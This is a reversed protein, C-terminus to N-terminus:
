MRAEAMRQREFMYALGTRDTTINYNHENTTNAYVTGGQSPVFMEPGREGVMYPLGASVPGGYARGPVSGTQNITYNTTVDRPVHQWADILLDVSGAQERTRATTPSIGFKSLDTMSIEGDKAAIPLKDIDKIYTDLPIKGAIFADNIQQQGKALALSEKTALGYKLMVQETAKAADEASVKGEKQAKIIADIAGQALMQKVQADTAKSFSQAMTDLRAITEGVSARYAADAAALVKKAEVDAAQKEAVRALAAYYRDQASSAAEVSQAEAEKQRRTDEALTKAAIGMVIQTQNMKYQAELNKGTAADWQGVASAMGVVAANYEELSMRGALVEDFMKQQNFVFAETMKNSGDTILDFSNAAENLIPIVANGVKTKFAELKDGLNDLNIELDRAAKVNEESMTLGLAKAERAASKIADGGQELIKAMELGARGFKEMAFQSRQVPDTIANYEDALKALTDINPQIGKKIAAKFAAELTGVSVTVDDAVQIMASTEEANAGIARSLDRVQAAYEMTGKVSDEVFDKVTSLAKGALDLGAKLDALGKVRSKDQTESKQSAKLAEKEADTMADLKERAEDIAKSAEDQALLKLLLEDQTPM